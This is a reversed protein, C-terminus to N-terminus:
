KRKRLAKTVYKLLNFDAQNLQGIQKETEKTLDNIGLKNLVNLRKKTQKKMM